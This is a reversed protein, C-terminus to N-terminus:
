DRAAARRCVVCPVARLRVKTSGRSIVTRRAVGLSDSLSPPPRYWEAGLGDSRDDAKPVGVRLDGRESCPMTAPRM